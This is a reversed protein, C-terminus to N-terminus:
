NLAWHRSAEWAEGGHRRSELVEGKFCLTLVSLLVAPWCLRRRGRQLGGGCGGNCRGKGSSDWTRVCCGGGRTCGMRSRLATTPTGRSTRTKWLQSSSRFLFQRSGGLGLMSAQRCRMASQKPKLKTFTLILILMFIPMPMLNVMLM